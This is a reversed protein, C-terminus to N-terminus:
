GKRAIKVALGILKGVPQWAGENAEFVVSKLSRLVGQSKGESKTLIKILLDRELNVNRATQYQRGGVEM